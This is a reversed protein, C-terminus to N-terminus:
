HLSNETSILKFSNIFNDAIKTYAPYMNYKYPYKAALYYTYNKTFFWLNKYVQDNNKDKAFVYYATNDSITEKELSVIKLENADYYSNITQKQESFELELSKFSVLFMEMEYKHILFYRYKFNDISDFDEQLVPKENFYASAGSISDVIRGNSGDYYQLLSDIKYEWSIQKDIKISHDSENDYQRQMEREEGFLDRLKQKYFSYNEDPNDKTYSNMKRAFVETINFHYQEHLLLEYSDENEYKKWSQQNNQASYAKYSKGISDSELYVKSSIGAEFTTFPRGMGKFDSWSLEGWRKYIPKKYFNNQILSIGLIIALSFICLFVKLKFATHLKVFLYVRQFISIFIEILFIFVLFVFLDSYNSSGSTIIFYGTILYYSVSSFVIYFVFVLTSHLFRGALNNLRRHDIRYLFHNISLLVPFLSLSYILSLNQFFPESQYFKFLRVVAFCLFGICFSTFLDKKNFAKIFLKPNLNSLVPNFENPIDENALPKSVIEIGVQKRWELISKAAEIADDQYSNKNDLIYRLEQDTKEEFKKKFHEIM